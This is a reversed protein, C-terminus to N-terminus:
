AAEKASDDPLRNIIMQQLVGMVNFVVWYLCLGAPFQMSIYGIMVPLFYLIVKNAGAPGSSVATLKSQLFTAAGVLVPLIYLPDPVSLSSIWFFTAHEIPDFNYNRLASFLAFLIPMQILIPFCGAAPNVNHKQYLDMMAKNLKEKDNKYQKQIKQMEPQIKQMGKMSKMQKITLPFLLMKIFITLLIIAFAYSPIGIAISLGYFYEILNLILDNLFSM